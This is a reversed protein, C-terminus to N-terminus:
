HFDCDEIDNVVRTQRPEEHQHQQGEEGGQVVLLGGPGRLRAAYNPGVGPDPESRQRRVLADLRGQHPVPVSVKIPVPLRPHVPQLLVQLVVLVLGVHIGEGLSMPNLTSFKSAQLWSSPSQALDILLFQELAGAGTFVICSITVDEKTQLVAERMEDLTQERFANRVEPRNITIWAANEKIEFIIEKFDTRM